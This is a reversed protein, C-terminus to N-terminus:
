RGETTVLESKYVANDFANNIEKQLNRLEAVSGVLMGHIDIYVDFMEGAIGDPFHHVYVASM